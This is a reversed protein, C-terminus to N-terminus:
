LIHQLQERLLQSRYRVYDATRNARWLTRKGVKLVDYGPFLCVVSSKPSSQTQKNANYWQTSTQRIKTFTTPARLHQAGGRRVSCSYCVLMKVMILLM